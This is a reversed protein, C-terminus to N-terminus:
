SIVEFHLEDFPRHLMVKEAIHQGHERAEQEAKLDADRQARYQAATLACDGAQYQFTNAKYQM